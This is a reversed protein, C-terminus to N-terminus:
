LLRLQAPRSSDQVKRTSGPTTRHAVQHEVLEANGPYAIAEDSLLALREQNRHFHANSTAGFFMALALLEVGERQDMVEAHTMSYASLDKLRHMMRDLDLEARQYALEWLQYIAEAATTALNYRQHEQM